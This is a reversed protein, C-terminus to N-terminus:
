ISLIREDSHFYYLDIETASDTFRPNVDDRIGCYPVWVIGGGDCFLPIDARLPRPVKHASLTDRVTKRIGGCLYSDTNTEARPRLFMGDLLKDSNIHTSIFFKYINKLDQVNKSSKPTKDDFLCMGGTSWQTPIGSPLPIPAQTLHPSPLPNKSLTCRGSDAHVSFVYGDPLQIQAKKPTDPVSAMADIHRKTCPTPIGAERYLRTLVRGRLAPHLAALPQSPLSVTGNEDATVYRDFFVDVQASFYDEDAALADSLSLLADTFHPNVTKAAPLVVTRLLNRTADPIANTSDTVYSLGHQACFALLDEKTMTLLPRVLSVTRDGVPFDRVPPIGTMGRVATGRLMRFLVTEACDDAHHATLIHTVTPNQEAHAALCAYRQERAEEELSRGSCAALAPVDIHRSFFPIGHTDCFDKCFREDRDAEAGRIGHHVHLASYSFPIRQAGALLHVLYLLATSDAGGSFAILLHADAKPLGARYMGNIFARPLKPSTM